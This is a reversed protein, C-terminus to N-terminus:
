KKTSTSHTTSTSNSSSTNCTQQGNPNAKIYADVAKAVQGDTKLNEWFTVQSRNILMLDEPGHLECGLKVLSVDNSNTSNSASSSSAQNPQVAQNVRLYYINQVRVYKDNLSTINGFYVQGNNLFVAQLEKTNIYKTENKPSGTVVSILIAVILVTVSLLMIGTIYGLLGTPRKKGKGSGAVRVPQPAEGNIEQNPHTGRQLFDM